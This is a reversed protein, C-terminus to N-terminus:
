PPIGQGTGPTARPAPASDANSAVQAPSDAGTSGHRAVGVLHRPVAPNSAFHLHVYSALVNRTAYGGPHEGGTSTRIAYCESAASGDTTRDVDAAAPVLVRSQHFEQGRVRTGRPGLVTDRLTEVEVYDIALYKRDMVVELPLVSTMPHRTGDFDTLSECLYMMGGCEAYVPRGSAAFRRIEQRMARNGALEAAFSEPYGGGIYLGHLDGPLHSDRIPSFPVLEAGEDALLRLNDQYYFCFAADRALGIRAPGGPSSASDAPPHRRAPERPTRRGIEFLRELRGVELSERAQALLAQRLGEAAANEELTLLGLHREAVGIEERAPLYGVVRRRMAEPLADLVMDVHRRSGARNLLLARIEVAPDLAEFGAVVAATSRTMGWIDLVLMVPLGLQEAFFAASGERTGNEGDHLAGMAEIVVVDAVAAYRDVTARCEELGMMWRDLNVSARGTALRHYGPDIFDPGLKFPQVRFGRETLLAMVALSATTKGVGSHTGAIVFGPASRDSM